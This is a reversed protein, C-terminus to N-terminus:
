RPDIIGEISRQLMEETYPKSLVSAGDVLMNKMSQTIENGTTYLIRLKPRLKIAALALECGGAVATKLYVDTFLADIKQDSSLIGLAEGVDSASLTTHGWDEIMMVGLERILADDEVVLIVAM